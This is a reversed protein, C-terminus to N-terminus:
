IQDDKKIGIKKEKMNLGKKMMGAMASSSSICCIQTTPPFETEAKREHRSDAVFAQSTVNTQFLLKSFTECYPMDNLYTSLSPLIFSLPITDSVSRRSGVLKAVFSKLGSM